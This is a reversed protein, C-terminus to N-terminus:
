AGQLMRAIEAVRAWLRPERMALEQFIRLAEVLRGQAVLREAEREPDPDSSGWTDAEPPAVTPEFVAPPPPEPRADRATMDAFPDPGTGPAGPERIAWTSAAAPVPASVPAHVPDLTPPPFSGRAPVPAETPPEVIQVAALTGPV